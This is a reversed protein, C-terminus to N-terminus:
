PKEGKQLQKLIYHLNMAKKEGGFHMYVQKGPPPPAILMFQVLTQMPDKWGMHFAMLVGKELKYKHAKGEITYHFFGHQQKYKELALAVEKSSSMIKVSKKKPTEKICGKMAQAIAQKKLIIAPMVKLMVDFTCEKDAQLKVV